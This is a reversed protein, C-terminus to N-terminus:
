VDKNFKKEEQERKKEMRLLDILVVITSLITIVYIMIDSIYFNM